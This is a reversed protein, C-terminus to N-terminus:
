KGMRTYKENFMGGIIWFVYYTASFSNLFMQLLTISVFSQSWYQRDLINSLVLFLTLFCLTGSFLGLYGILQFLANHAQKQDYYTESAYLAEGTILYHWYGFRGSTFLDIIKGNEYDTNMILIPLFIVMCLLLYNLRTHTKENLFKFVYKQVIFIISVFMATRSFFLAFAILNILTFLRLSILRQLCLIMSCVLLAASTYNSDGELGLMIRWSFSTFNKEFGWGNIWPLLFSLLIYMKILVIFYTQLERSQYVFLFINKVFIVPSITIWPLAWIFVWKKKIIVSSLSVMIAPLTVSLLASRGFYKRCLADMIILSSALIVKFM